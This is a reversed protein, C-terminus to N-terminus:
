HVNRSYITGKRGCHGQRLSIDDLGIAGKTGDGATAKFGIQVQSGEEVFVETRGPVWLNGHDGHAQWLTKSDYDSIEMVELSGVDSGSIFYQFRLCVTDDILTSTEQIATSGSDTKSQDFLM